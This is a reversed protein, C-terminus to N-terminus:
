LILDAAAAVVVATAIWLFVKHKFSPVEAACGSDCTVVPRRRYTVYVAAGLFVASLVLLHPRFAAARAFLAGGGLGTVALLLPGVCCLASSVAAGIAGLSLLGSRSPTGKM